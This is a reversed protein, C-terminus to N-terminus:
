QSGTHEYNLKFDNRQQYFFVKRNYSIKFSIKFFFTDYPNSPGCCRYLHFLTRPISASGCFWLTTTSYPYTSIRSGGLDTIYHRLFYIQLRIVARLRLQPFTINKCRDQWEPWLPHHRGTPGPTYVGGSVCVGPCVGWGTSIVMSVASHMWSFHM